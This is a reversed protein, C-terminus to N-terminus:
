RRPPATSARGSVFGEIDIPRGVAHPRSQVGAGVLFSLAAQVAAPRNFNYSSLGAAFAATTDDYGVVSLRSPVDVDHDALWRLCALAMPDNCVVWASIERNELAQAMLPEMQAGMQAWRLDDTMQSRLRNLAGALLQRSPRPSAALRSEVRSLEAGFAEQADLASAHDYEQTFAHLSRGPQAFCHALGHLRGQSYATDHATSLYAVNRHGLRQLFRGVQKGALVGNATSYVRVQRGGPLPEECAGGTQDLVAVPRGLPLLSSVMERYQRPLGGTISVISGLLAQRGSPHKIQEVSALLEDRPFIPVIRLAFGARSCESSLLRLVEDGVAWGIMFITNAARGAAIAPVRFGRGHPEVVREELLALLARKLTRFGAGYRSQLLKHGPLVAGPAYVSRSIDAQLSNRLRQWKRGEPRAPEQTDTAIRSGTPALRIGQRQRATLMGTRRLQGVALWMTHPAVGAQVALARITPLRPQGARRANRVTRNLHAEARLQARSAM